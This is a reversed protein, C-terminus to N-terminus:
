SAYRRAILHEIPAGIRWSRHAHEVEIRLKFSDYELDVVVVEALKQLPIRSKFSLAEIPHDVDIWVGRV